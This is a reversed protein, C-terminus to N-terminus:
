VMGLVYQLTKSHHDLVVVEEAIVNMFERNHSVVVLTTDTLSVLYRALWALAKQDLHNTPEDLMLLDPAVFLAQAIALRMRWGGSLSTTPQALMTPSFGLGFLLREARAPERATERADLQELVAGLLEAGLVWVCDHPKRQCSM